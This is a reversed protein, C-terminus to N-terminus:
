HAPSWLEVRNRGAAKAAYLARDARELLGDLTLPEHDTLAAVGISVTVSVMGQTTAAPVTALAACVRQAVSLATTPTTEPLLVVFEEGGYRCAIDVQRLGARITGAVAQLVQDGLQHGYTDNIAKFYDLDLMLLSLPRGYRQSREFEQQALSFFHRRNFLGTLSDQTALQRLADEMRKRDTIDTVMALAGAYRGHADTIPNTALLAWLEGGDLRRFKFDHQEAIGQRRRELNAEAIRRGEEDMFDFLSKGQMAAVTCGLMEAMRANALTTRGEADIQWIGEQATEVIRRYRAESERLADEARRQDTIDRGVSQLELLAQNEDLIAQDTWQMWRWEGDARIVRHIYTNIPNEATCAATQALAIDQDEDPIMPLFRTALLDEHSRGFYRCYADNVFTLTGDPLFRCLLDTQNEVIARYRAESLQLLEETQKRETIDTIFGELAQLKGQSALVGRGPEFVGRGQEFVWREEGAATRIRYTLRFPQRQRVAAEVQEWVGARDAPHILSAYSVVRSDVLDDVPYGTLELCGDSVFEMTWDPDNRCRYVMGPLNDLLTILIRQQERLVQEIHQNQNLRELLKRLAYEHQSM